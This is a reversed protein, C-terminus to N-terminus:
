AMRAWDPSLRMIWISGIVQIAILLGHVGMLVAAPVLAQSPQILLVSASIVEAFSIHRKALRHHLLHLAQVVLLASYTIEPTLM